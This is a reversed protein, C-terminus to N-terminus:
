PIVDPLAPLAESFHERQQRLEEYLDRTSEYRRAPDKALCRQMTWRLPAPLRAQLVPDIAPAEDTVVASMTLIASERQFAQKGTAMEYLIIGFSFQDSRYDVALGR